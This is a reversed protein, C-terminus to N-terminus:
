RYHLSIGDRFVHVKEPAATLRLTKGKLGRHIGPLKAIVPDKGDAEPVFFLLTVEGLNEQM